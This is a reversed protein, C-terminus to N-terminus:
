AQLELVKPLQPPRIVQPQSNSVQQGVHCFGMELLFVFSLWAHHHMGTTGAVNCELRPLLALSGTIGASQAVSQSASAPPDGSTLLELGAQGVHLFRDRLILLAHHCMGTIRAVQSASASSDSSCLLHLNCLNHHASIAGNYEETEGLVPIVPMFWQMCGLFSSKLLDTSIRLSGVIWSRMNYIIIIIIVDHESIDPTQSWGSWHSSVADRSFMSFNAPCPPVHRYDWSSLLSLCSFQKFSPPPPQLSSLNCWHVGAQAVLAFSWRGTKWTAPVVPM